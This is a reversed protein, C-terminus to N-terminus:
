AAQSTSKQFIKKIKKLAGEICNGVSRRGIGLKQAIAQQSMGKYFYLRIVEMQRKTLKDMAEYLRCLEIEALVMENDEQLFDVSAAASWDSGDCELSVCEFKDFTKNHNHELRMEGEMLLRIGGEENELLEQQITIRTRNDFDYTYEKCRDVAMVTRAGDAEYVAYGNQYVTLLATNVVKQAVVASKMEMLQKFTPLKGESTASIHTRLERLTVHENLAIINEM